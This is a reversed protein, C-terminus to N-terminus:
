YKNLMEKTKLSIALCLEIWTQTINFPDGRHTWILNCKVLLYYCRVNQNPNNGHNNKSGGGRLHQASQPFNQPPCQKAAMAKSRRGRWERGGHGGGCRNTQAIKTKSQITKTDLSEDDRQIKPNTRCLAEWSIMTLYWQM